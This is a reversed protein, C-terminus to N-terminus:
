AAACRARRTRRTDSALAGHPEEIMCVGDICDQCNAYYQRECRKCIPLYGPVADVYTQNCQYCPTRELM